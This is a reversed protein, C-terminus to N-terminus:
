QKKVTLFPKQPLPQGGATFNIPYDGDAGNPVVFNFQYLGVLSPALGQYTVTADTQDFKITVKNADVLTNQQTVTVGPNITPTVDGFGIGYVTLADGPKAPHFTAGAVLGPNGVFTNDSFQAVLYQKGGVNFAAPTLLGPVTPAKQVIFNNSLAGAPTKIQVNVPGVSTDAPPQVNVQSDSVYYVFAAKGNVTASMGDTVTPANGNQFDSGAWIAGPGGGFNAGKIEIWTGAAINPFGGFDTASTVSTITPSTDAQLLSAALGSDFISSLTGTATKGGRSPNSLSQASSLAALGAAIVFVKLLRM